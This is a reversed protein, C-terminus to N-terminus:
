YVPLARGNAAAVLSAHFDQLFSVLTQDDRLTADLHEVFGVETVGDAVPRIVLSGELVDIFGTGETKEWVIVVREPEAETGEQLEHLWRLDYNVTIVDHVTNHVVYSEDFGDSTSTVTWEDVERRDVGVDPDRAAAWVDGSSAHIYGLAHAWWLGGDGGSVVSLVEPYPEGDSTPPSARNDDLPALTDPTPGVDNRGCGAWLVFTVTFM